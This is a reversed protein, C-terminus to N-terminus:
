EGRSLTQLHELFSRPRLNTPSLSAADRHLTHVPVSNAELPAVEAAGRLAEGWASLRELLGKRLPQPMSDGTPMALRDDAVGRIQRNLNGTSVADEASFVAINEFRAASSVFRIADGEPEAASFSAFKVQPYKRGLDLAIMASNDSSGLDAIIIEFQGASEALLDLWSEVRKTLSFEQNQVTLILSLATPM